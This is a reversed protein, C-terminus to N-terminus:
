ILLDGPISSSILMKAIPDIGTAAPNNRNTFLYVAQAKIATLIQDTVADATTTYTAKYEGEDSLFNDGTLTWETTNALIDTWDFTAGCCGERRYQLATIANVPGEPLRITRCGNHTFAVDITKVGFSRGSAAELQKRAAKILATILSDYDSYTINGYAKVDALIVPEQTLDTTVKVSRISNGSQSM